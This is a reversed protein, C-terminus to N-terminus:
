VTQNQLDNNSTIKDSTKTSIESVDYKNKNHIPLKIIRFISTTWHM